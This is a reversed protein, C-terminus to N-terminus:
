TNYYVMCLWKCTAYVMLEDSICEGYIGRTQVFTQGVACQCGACSDNFCYAKSNHCGHWDGHLINTFRDNEGRFIVVNGYTEHSTLTILAFCFLIMSLLVVKM